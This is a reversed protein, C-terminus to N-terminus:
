EVDTLIGKITLDNMTWVVETEAYSLFECLINKYCHM